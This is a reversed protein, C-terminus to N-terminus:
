GNAIVPSTDDTTAYSSFRVGRARCADKLRARHTDFRQTFSAQNQRSASSFVVKQTGDTVTYIGSPPLERDLPDYVHVLSIENHQQLVLLQRLDTDSINEFDSIFVIRHGIPTVRRLNTLVDYWSIQAVDLIRHDNTLQNNADSIANLLRVVSLKSRIPKFVRLGDNEIVVGGVRDRANLTLWAFRAAIEAAAVSKLRVQSGFFMSDTQDVVIMTPREREERFIKTHVKQKRATVKWDINRVDDGAQYLRVEDLDVGRGRVRSVLVGTHGGTSRRRRRVAVREAALGILDSASVYVGTLLAM